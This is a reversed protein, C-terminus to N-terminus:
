KKEKALKNGLRQVTGQLKKIEERAKFLEEHLSLNEEILDKREQERWTDAKSPPAAPAKPRNERSLGEPMPTPAKATM